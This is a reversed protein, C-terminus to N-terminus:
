AALATADTPDEHAVGPRVRKRAARYAGYFSPDSTSYRKVLRDLRKTLIALGKALLPDVQLTGGHRQSIVARPAGMLAEFNDLAAQLAARDSPLYGWEELDDSHTTLHGVIVQAFAVLEEAGMRTLLSSPRRSLELLHPLDVDEAMDNLHGCAEDVLLRLEESWRRKQATTPKSGEGQLRAVQELDAFVQDLDNAAREIGVSGSWSSSYTDLQKRVARLRRLSSIQVKNM